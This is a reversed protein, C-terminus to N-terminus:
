TSTTDALDIVVTARNGAAIVPELAGGAVAGLQILGPPPVTQGLDDYFIAVQDTGPVYYIGGLAPDTVPQAGRTDIRAPLLGLKAQGMPDRLNVTM